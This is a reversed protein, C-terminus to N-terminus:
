PWREVGCHELQGSQLAALARASVVLRHDSSLGFDDVGAAGAVQLWEFEPLIRGPHLEEFTASTSQHVRALGFGTLRATLLARAVRRSVIFCPFSEVLEDGFWDDFCYHLVSVVPPHTTTNAVTGEGWGGAVEPELTFWDM